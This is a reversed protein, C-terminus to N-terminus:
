RCVCPFVETKERCRRYKGTCLMPVSIPIKALQTYFWRKLPDKEGEANWSGLNDDEFDQVYSGTSSPYRSNPGNFLPFIDM